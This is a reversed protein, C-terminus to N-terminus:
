ELPEVDFGRFRTTPDPDQTFSWLYSSTKDEFFPYTVFAIGALGRGLPHSDYLGPSQPSIFREGFDLWTDHTGYIPSETYPDFPPDSDVCDYDAPGLEGFQLGYANYKPVLPPNSNFVASFHNEAQDTTPILDYDGESDGSCSDGDSHFGSASHAWHVHGGMLKYTQRSFRDEHIEWRLNTARGTENMQIGDVNGLSDFDVTGVWNTCGLASLELFTSNPSGPVSDDLVHGRDEHNGNSIVVILEEVDQSPQGGMAPKDRCLTKREYTTWDEAARWDEGEAKIIVQVKANPDSTYPHKIRIRRIKPDDTFDFHWYQAGLHNIKHTLWYGGYVKGNLFMKKPAQFGGPPATSTSERAKHRLSDWEHYKRYPKSVNPIRNWDYLAFEHWKQDLDHGALGADLARLSDLNATAAWTDAIQRVEPDAASTKGKSIYLLWLYAGYQHDDGVHELEVTPVNLLAPAAAHESNTTPYVFHEAWTATAEHLWKYEGGQNCGTGGPMTRYRYYLLAHTLEHALVEKVAHHDPAMWIEPDTTCRHSTARSRSGAEESVFIRIVRGTPPHGFLDTLKPWIVDRAETEMFTATLYELPLSDDWYIAIENPVIWAAGTWGGAPAWAASSAAGGSSPSHGEAVSPALPIGSVEPSELYPALIAQTAPSLTPFSEDAEGLAIAEQADSARGRYAIPLLPDGVDSYVRYILATEDSITGNLRAQEILEASTPALPTSQITWVLDDLDLLTRRDQRITFTDTSRATAGTALVGFGLAGEVVVTAPDVSTLTASVSADVADWNSGEARLTYEVVTRSIRTSAVIEFHDIEVDAAMSPSTSTAVALVTWSVSRAVRDPRARRAFAVLLAAGLLVGSALAPEPVTQGSQVTAFSADYITYPQSGPTGPGLWVFDIAFAVSTSPSGVLAQGDFRGAEALILDPQFAVVDWNPSVVPPPSQLSAYQSRDFGVSFGFGAPHPFDSLTYVYRVLNRGPVVDVLDVVQYEIDVASASSALAIGLVCISKVLFGMIRM